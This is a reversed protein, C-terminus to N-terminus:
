LAIRMICTGDDFREVVRGGLREYFAPIDTGLFLETLGLRRAEGVLARVLAGGIGSGRQGRAVVLAALWPRLDPRRESDCEVLNVTGVPQGDVLALLSLPIRGPDRAERLRREFVGVDYGPRGAWFEEYIWGAVLSIHQPHACLHEIATGAAASKGGAMGSAPQTMM